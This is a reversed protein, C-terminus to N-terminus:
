QWRQRFVYPDAFTKGEQWSEETVVAHSGCKEYAFEIWGTAAPSLYYSAGLGSVRVTGEKRGPVRNVNVEVGQFYTNWLRPMMELMRDPSLMSLIFRYVTSLNDNAIYRGMEKFFRTQEARGVGVFNLNVCESWISWLHQAPYWISPLVHPWLAQADASLSKVIQPMADPGCRKQVFDFASKIGAGKVRPASTKSM